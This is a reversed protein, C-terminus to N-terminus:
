NTNEYRSLDNNMELLFCALFLVKVNSYESIKLHKFSNKECLSIDRANYITIEEVVNVQSSCLYYNFITRHM